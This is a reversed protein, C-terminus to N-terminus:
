LAREIAGFGIINIMLDPKSNERGRRKVAKAKGQSAMVLAGDPKLVRFLEKLALDFDQYFHSSITSTILDFHNNEVPIKYVTNNFFSINNCNYNKNKAVELMEPSIDLGSFEAKPWCSAM